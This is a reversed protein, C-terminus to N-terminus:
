RRAVKLTALGSQKNIYYLECRDPSMWVPWDNGNPLSHAMDRVPTSFPSSPDSRTSRYIDLEGTGPAHRDAAFLLELEDESVVPSFESYSPEAGGPVVTATGFTPPTGSARYLDWDGNSGAGFYLTSGNGLIYPENSYDTNPAIDLLTATSMGFGGAVKMAIWIHVNGGGRQSGFLLYEADATITPYSDYIGPTNISPPLATYATFEGTTVSYPSTHLECMNKDNNACLALYALSREPNFRAAEVSYAGDIRVETGSGFPQDHPCVYGDPRAEADILVTEQIGFLPNCSALAAFAVRSVRM